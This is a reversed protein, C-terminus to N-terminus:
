AKRQQLKKNYRYRAQKIATNVIFNVSYFLVACIGIYWFRDENSKQIAIGICFLGWTWVFLTHKSYYTLIKALTTM